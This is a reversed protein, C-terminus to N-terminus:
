SSMLFPKPIEVGNPQNQIDPERTCLCSENSSHAVKGGSKGGGPPIYEHTFIVGELVRPMLFHIPALISTSVRARKSQKEGIWNGLLM